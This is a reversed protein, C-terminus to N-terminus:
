PAETIVHRIREIVPHFLHVTTASFLSFGRLCPDNSDRRYLVMDQVAAHVASAREGLAVFLFNGKAHITRLGLADMEALFTDRRDCSSRPM